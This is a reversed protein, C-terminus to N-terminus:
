GHRRPGFRGGVRGGRDSTANAPTVPAHYGVIQNETTSAAAVSRNDEAPGRDTSQSRGAYGEVVAVAQDV